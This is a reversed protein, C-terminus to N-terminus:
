LICTMHSTFSLILSFSPSYFHSFFSSFTDTPSPLLSTCLLRNLYLHHYYNLYHFCVLRRVLPDEEEEKGKEDKEEEEEEEEELETETEKEIPEPKISNFDVANQFVSV